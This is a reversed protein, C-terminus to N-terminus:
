ERYTKTFAMNLNNLQLLFKQYKLMLFSSFNEPDRAMTVEPPITNQSGSTTTSAVHASSM